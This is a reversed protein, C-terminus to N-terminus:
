WKIKKSGIFNFSFTPKTGFWFKAKIDNSKTIIWLNQVELIKNGVM